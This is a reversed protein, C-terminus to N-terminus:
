SSMDEAIKVINWFLKGCRKVPRPFTTLDNRLANYITHSNNLNYAQVVEKTCLMTKEPFMQELKDLTLKVTRDRTIKKDLKM